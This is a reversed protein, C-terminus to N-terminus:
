GTFFDPPESYMHDDVIQKEIKERLADGRNLYLEGNFSSGDPFTMNQYKSGNMGVQIMAHAYALERVAQHNYMKEDAVRRYCSMAMVGKSSPPPSIRVTHDLPSFYAMMKTTFLTRYMELTQMGMFWSVIDVSGIGGGIWSGWRNDFSTSSNMFGYSGGAQFLGGLPAFLVNDENNGYGGFMGKYLTDTIAIVDTPVTYITKFVYGNQQPKVSTDGETWFPGIAQPDYKMKDTFCHDAPINDGCWSPGPDTECPCLNGAADLYPYTHGDSHATDYPLTCTSLMSPNFDTSCKNDNGGMGDVVITPGNFGPLPRSMPTGTMGPTGTTGTTGSTGPTVHRWKGGTPGPQCVKGTGDYYLLEPCIAIMSEVNGIGGAHEGFFDCAHDICDDIQTTDILVDIVPQGLRRRIWNALERKKQYPRM